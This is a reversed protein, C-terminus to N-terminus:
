YINHLMFHFSIFTISLFSCLSFGCNEVIEIVSSLCLECSCNKRLLIYLDKLFSLIDELNSWVKSFLLSITHSICYTVCYKLFSACIEVNLVFKKRM